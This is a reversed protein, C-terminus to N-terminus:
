LNKMRPDLMDRLWNGLTNIGLLCIMLALGPCVSLWWGSAVYNRGDAVMNGWSPTPPAIGVGLFSLAAEALIVQPIAFSAIVIIVNVVNPLIHRFMIRVTPVGVARASLVFDAERLSLARARVIRAYQVWGTVALVIVINRLGQGLVAMVVIALLLAPFALQVDGLRTVISDTIGGLYGSALGLSVGVIAGLLVSSFGVLLSVRSGLIIRSLIDRGLADTGLPYSVSGSSEWFPPQLRHSLSQRYPDHPTILPAVIAMLVFVVTVAIGIRGSWSELFRWRGKRLKRPQLNILSESAAM